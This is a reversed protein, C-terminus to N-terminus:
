IFRDFRIQGPHVKHRQMLMAQAAEVMPPPGALYFDFRSFPAPTSQEVAEHVFGTAGDWRPEPLAASLVTTVALRDCVMDQLVELGGLDSQSRLGVYLHVRRGDRAALAGRAISLMPGLGSGGAICVLDRGTDDKLGAHGYPGDIDIAQGVGVREFLAKSGSGGSVRKVIFQWLGLDNSLNSMSYARAGVVDPLYLLAYQGPVFGAALDTAFTFEALDHTLPQVQVLRASSRRPVHAPPPASGLRVRVRLDGTVRTQCALRKGRQRDRASLGPARLWLEETQGELLEFRCSGCGGVSCEYPWDWGARLAGRLLTDEGHALEFDPGGEVEVCWGGGPKRPPRDNV